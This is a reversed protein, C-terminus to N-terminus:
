LLRSGERSTLLKNITSGFTKIEYQDLLNEVMNQFIALISLIQEDTLKSSKNGLVKRAQEITITM